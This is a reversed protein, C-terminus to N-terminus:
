SLKVMKLWDFDETKFTQSIFNSFVKVFYAVIFVLIFTVIINLPFLYILRSGIGFSWEGSLYIELCCASITYVPWHIFKMQYLSVIKKSECIKYLCFVIFLLVPLLVIQFYKLVPFRDWMIQYGYYFFTAITIFVLYLWGRGGTQENSIIINHKNYVIAGFLMVLFYGPWRLYTGHHLIFVNKDWFWTYWILIILITVIVAIRLGVTGYNRVLWFVAYFVFIAQIFWRNGSNNLVLEKLSTDQGWMCIGLLAVAILAPYIRNIRRKYWTFFDCPKGMMLLYGSCFFFLSDGIAGGTAFNRLPEPYLSTMHSNTILIAALFKLIDVTHNRQKQVIQNEM